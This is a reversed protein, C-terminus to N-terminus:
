SEIGYEVGLRGTMGALVPLRMPIAADSCRHNRQWRVSGVIVASLHHVPGCFHFSCTKGACSSLLPIVVTSIVAYRESWASHPNQVRVDSHNSQRGGDPGGFAPILMQVEARPKLSRSRHGLVRGASPPLADVAHAANALGVDDEAQFTDRLRETESSTLEQSLDILECTAVQAQNAAEGATPENQGETGVSGDNGYPVRHGSVAPADIRRLVGNSGLAECPQQVQQSM